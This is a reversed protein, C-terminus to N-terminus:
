DGWVFAKVEYPQLDQEPDVPAPEDRFADRSGSDPLPGNLSVTVPEDVSNVIFLYRKGDHDFRAHSVSPFEMAEDRYKFRQSAPGSSVALQTDNVREGFLFVQALALEGNLERAVSTYGAYFNNFHKSFGPRNSHASFILLGKAGLMLSLYADHRTWSHIKAVDQAEQDGAMWLVAIPTKDLKDAAAVTQEVSWRLWTRKDKMGVHNTYSGKAIFDVYGGTKELAATDRHNPEYMMIPRDLADHERIIRTAQQMFDMEKANWHRMEENRLNWVSIAPNDALTKIEDALEELAKDIEAKSSNEIEMKTGASYVWPLGSAKSWRGLYKSANTGYYPGISTLGDAKATEFEAKRLSYMSFLMVKGAPYIDAPKVALDDARPEGPLAVWLLTAMVISGIRLAGSKSTIKVM